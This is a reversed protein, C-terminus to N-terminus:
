KREEVTIQNGKIRVTYDVGDGKFKLKMPAQRLSVFRFGQKQVAKKAAQQYERFDEYEKEDQWRGELYDFTKVIEDIRDDAVLERAVKLLARAVDKMM